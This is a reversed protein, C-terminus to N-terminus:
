ATCLIVSECRSTDSLPRVHPKALQNVQEEEGEFVYRVRRKGERMKETADKKLFVFKEGQNIDRPDPGPICTSERFSDEVPIPPDDDDAAGGGNM